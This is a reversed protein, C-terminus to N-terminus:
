DAHLCLYEGTRLSAVQRGTADFITYGLSQLHEAIQATSHGAPLWFPHVALIITPHGECWLRHGGHLVLLEAGEVDIKVLDPSLGSALCVTDITTTQIIVQRVLRGEMLPTGPAGSTLSNMPSDGADILYFEKNGADEDSVAKPVITWNQLQNARQHWTLVALNVPSPEFSYVAGQRGVIVLAWMSVWGHHAGIDFFVHGPKLYKSLWTQVHAEGRFFTRASMSLAARPHVWILRGRVLWPLPPLRYILSLAATKVANRFATPM